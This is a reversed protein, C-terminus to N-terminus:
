ILWGFLHRGEEWSEGLIFSFHFVQVRTHLLKQNKDAKQTFKTMGMLIINSFISSDLFSRFHCGGMRPFLTKCNNKVSCNQYKLVINLSNQIARGLFSFSHTLIVFLLQLFYNPQHASHTREPISDESFSVVAEPVVAASVVPTGPADVIEKKRKSVDGSSNSRPLPEGAVPQQEWRGQHASTPDPQHICISAVLAVELDWGKFLLFKMCQVREKGEQTSFSLHPASSAAKRQSWVISCCPPLVRRGQIVSHLLAGRGPSRATRRHVTM